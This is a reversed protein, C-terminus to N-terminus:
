DQEEPEQGTGRMRERHDLEDIYREWGLNELDYLRQLNNGGELGQHIPVWLQMIEPSESDSASEKSDTGGGSDANGLLNM